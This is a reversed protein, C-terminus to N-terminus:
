SSSEISQVAEAAFYRIENDQDKMCEKLVNLASPDNLHSLAMVAHRRVIMEQRTKLLSILSDVVSKDGIKGLAWVAHWCRKPDKDEMQKQLPEAAKKDGIEGLAWAAQWHVTDHGDNLLEILADVVEGAGKIEGLAEASASREQWLKSKLFGLLYPIAKADGIKGLALLIDARIEKYEELFEILVEFAERDRNEGLARVVDRRAEVDMTKIKKKLDDFSM